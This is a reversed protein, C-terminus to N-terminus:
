HVINEYKMFWEVFKPIGIDIPTSPSFKLDRTSETIDALTEKMDGPQMPVALVLAKRGLAEEITRLFHLISESKSNGLNYAKYPVMDNKQIPPLYLAAMIGNVIDDIYTFDRKLHGNNFLTIPEGSVIAKAFLYVAMDPRGWPGYVTFLRLATAPIHYLHSYSYTMLEDALKTAAYLSLPSKVEDRICYPLMSNGGYVSSSSAFVLHELRPLRRCLELIVLQGIINSHTYAFPNKLSHRVGAQAAMHVVHTIATHYRTLSFMAEQDAIDQEYFTFGTHAYLQELRAKKLNVDYYDNLNDVAIVEQGQELLRKAVHFGIFGAAGTVMVAM